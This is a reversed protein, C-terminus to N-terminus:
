ATATTHHEARSEEQKTKAKAHSQVSNILITERRSFHKLTQLQNKIREALKRPKEIAEGDWLM